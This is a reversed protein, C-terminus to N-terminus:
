TLRDIVEDTLDGPVITVPVPFAGSGTSVLSSVLPGPGESGSAAALVLIAIAKDEEILKVIEDAMAGERIVQEPKIASYEAAESAVRRLIRRAERKAEERMMTEINLWHQFDGPTIVYLLTLGGGTHEARRAAFRLARGAEPSGDVIVLFKRSPKPARKKAAPKKAAAKKAPAKKAASKKAVQKKAPQKRAAKKGAPGGGAGSSKEAESMATMSGDAKRLPM